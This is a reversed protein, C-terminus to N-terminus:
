ESVVVPIPAYREAGSDDVHVWLTYRGAAPLRVRFDLEPAAGKERGTWSPHMHAYGPRGEDSVLVAHGLAGMLKGLTVAQGDARSLRARLTVSRNARLPEPDVLTARLNGYLASQASSADAHLMPWEARASLLITRRSRAHMFDAYVDFQGGSFTAGFERPFGFAWTGDPQPEPHLHLYARGGTRQVLHLHLQRTHSVALEHPLVNRGDADLLRLSGSTLDARTEVKLSFPFRLDAPNYFNAEENEGCFEIGDVVVPEHEAHLFACHTDPLSRLILFAVAAGLTLWVTQRSRTM